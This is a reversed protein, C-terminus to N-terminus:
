REDPSGSPPALNDWFAQVIREVAPPSRERGERKLAEVSEATEREIAALAEQCKRSTESALRKTEERAEAVIKEAAESETQRIAGLLEREESV